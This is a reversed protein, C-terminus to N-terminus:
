RWLGPTAIHAHTCVENMERERERIGVIVVAGFADGDDDPVAALLRSGTVPELLGCAAPKGDVDHAVVARGVVPHAQERPSAVTFGGLKHGETVEHTLRLSPPTSTSCPCFPPPPSSCGITNTHGTRDWTHKIVM